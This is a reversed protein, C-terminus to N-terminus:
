NTVVGKRIILNGFRISDGTIVVAYAESARQYFQERTCVVFKANENNKIIINKYDSQITIENELDKPIEFLAAAERRYDTPFFKLVAKLLTIIKVSDCRIVKKGLSHAPFNADAVVLEDGHGMEMLIKMLEPTLIKPIKNLM